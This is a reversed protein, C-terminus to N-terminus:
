IASKVPRHLPGMRKESSWMEERKVWHKTACRARAHWRMSKFQIQCWRRDIVSDWIFLSSVSHIATHNERAKHKATEAMRCCEQRQGWSHINLRWGQHRKQVSGPPQHAIVRPLHHGHQVGDLLHHGVSCWGSGPATWHSRSARDLLSPYVCVCVYM